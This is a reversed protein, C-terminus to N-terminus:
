GEIRASVYTSVGTIFEGTTPSFAGTAASITEFNEFRPLDAIWDEAHSSSTALMRAQQTAAGGYLGSAGLVLIPATTALIMTLRKMMNEGTYSGFSHVRHRDLPVMAFKM